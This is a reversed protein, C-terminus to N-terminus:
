QPRWEDSPDPIPDGPKWDPPADLGTARFYESYAIMEEFAREETDTMPVQRAIWSAVASPGGSRLEVVARELADVREELTMNNM